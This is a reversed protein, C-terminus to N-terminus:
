QKLDYVAFYSEKIKANHYLGDNVIYMKGDVISLGEVAHAGITQYKVISKGTNKDFSIVYNSEGNYDAGVTILLENGNNFIMDQDKFDFRYKNLLQGNKDFHLLYKSYCLVWLSDKDVCIGNSKYKKYKGLDFESILTGDKKINKCSDGVALWLSDTIEDYAVGQLNDSNSLVNSLDIISLVKTLDRNVEIVRPTPSYTSKLAGYDGIWFVNDKKDFTLGTSTFNDSGFENFLVSKGELVITDADGVVAKPQNIFRYGLFAIPLLAILFLLICVKRRM